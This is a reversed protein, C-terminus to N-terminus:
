RRLDLGSRVIDDRSAPSALYRILVRAADAHPAGVPIGASFTTVTQVAEPIRAVFDAGAVPLLESVQQFGIEYQGSAVMEGVPTKEIKKAKAKAQEEIGLKRFLEREVYVGSASDSYAISKAQLLAARLGDVTSIDPKPAGSKVAIGIRSDALDVKSDAMVVGTRILEDLAYGVM